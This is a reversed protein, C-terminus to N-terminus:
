KLNFCGSLIYDNYSVNTKGVLLDPGGDGAVFVLAQNFNKDWCNKISWNIAEKQFNNLVSKLFDFGQAFFLFDRNQALGLNLSKTSDRIEAIQFDGFNQWDFKFVTPDAILEVVSTNDPLSIELERPFFYCLENSLDIVFNESSFDVPKKTIFVFNDKQFLFIQPLFDNFIKLWILDEKLKQPSFEFSPSQDYFILYDDGWSLFAKEGFGKDEEIFRHHSNKSPYSKFFFQNNRLFLNFCDASLFNPLLLKKIGDPWKTTDFYAQAFNQSFLLQGIKKEQFFSFSKNFEPWNIEKPSLVVLTPSLWYSYVNIQDPGALVLALNSFVPKLQYFLLPFIENDQQYIVIGLEQLYSIFEKSFNIKLARWSPYRSFLFELTKEPWNKQFFIGARRSVLHFSDFSFHFYALAGDPVFKILTDQPPSFYFFLGILGLFLICCFLFLFFKFIFKIKILM